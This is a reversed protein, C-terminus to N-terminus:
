EPPSLLGWLVQLEHPPRLPPQMSHSFASPYRPLLPISMGVVVQSWYGSLACSIYPMLCAEHGIDRWGFGPMSNIYPM